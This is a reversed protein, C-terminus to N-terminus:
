MVGFIPLVMYLALFILVGLGMAILWAKSSKNSKWLTVAFGVIGLIIGIIFNLGLGITTGPITFTTLPAVGNTQGSGQPNYPSPNQVQGIIESGTSAPATIGPCDQPCSGPENPMSCINDGCTGAASPSGSGGANGGGSGGSGPNAQDKKVELWTSGSLSQGVLKLRYNSPDWSINAGTVEFKSACTGSTCSYVHVGGGQQPYSLWPSIVGTMTVTSTGNALYIVDPGSGSVVTSTPFRFRAVVNWTTNAKGSSPITLGVNTLNAMATANYVQYADPIPTSSDNLKIVANTLTFENNTYNLGITINFWFNTGSGTMNITSNWQTATKIPTTSLVKNFLPPAITVTINEIVWSDIPVEESTWNHNKTGGGTWTGSVNLEGGTSNYVHYAGNTSNYGLFNLNCKIANETDNNTVNIPIQFTVWDSSGYIYTAPSQGYPTGVTSQTCNENTFGTLSATATVGAALLLLSLVAVMPLIIKRM